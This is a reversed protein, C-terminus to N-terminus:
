KDEYIKPIFTSKFIRLLEIFVLTVSGVQAVGVVGTLLGAENRAECSAKVGGDENDESGNWCDM